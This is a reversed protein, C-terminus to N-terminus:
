QWSHKNYKETFESNTTIITRGLVAEIKALEKLTFGHTGSLWGSITEESEGVMEAFKEKTIGKQVLISYIYDSIEFSKSVFISIDKSIKIRDFFTNM